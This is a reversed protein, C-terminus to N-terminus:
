RRVSSSPGAASPASYAANTITSCRSARRDQAVGQKRPALVDAGRLPPRHAGTKSRGRATGRSSPAPGAGRCAPNPGRRAPVPMTETGRRPAGRAGKQSRGRATGRSTPAPGADADARESVVGVRPTLWRAPHSRRPGPAPVPSPCGQPACLDRAGSPRRRPPRPGPRRGRRADFPHAQVAHRHAQVRLRVAPTRLGRAPRARRGRGDALLLVPRPRAGLREIVRDMAFGEWSAGVRRISM